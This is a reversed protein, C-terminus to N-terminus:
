RSTSSSDSPADQQSPRKASPRGELWKKLSHQSEESGRGELLGEISIDEDLDPWHIGRGDGILLWRSREESTGHWLRPYWTLPVSLTRGDALEVALADETVVVHRALPIQIETISSSM